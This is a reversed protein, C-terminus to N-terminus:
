GGVAVARGDFDGGCRYLFWAMVWADDGQGDGEGKVRNGKGRGSM